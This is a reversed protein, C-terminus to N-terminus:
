LIKLNDKLLPTFNVCPFCIHQWPMLYGGDKDPLLTTIQNFSVNQRAQTISRPECYLLKCNVQFRSPLPFFLLPLCLWSEFISFVLNLCVSSSFPFLACLALSVFFSFSLCLSFVCWPFSHEGSWYDKICFLSISVWCLPHASLRHNMLQVRSLLFCIM